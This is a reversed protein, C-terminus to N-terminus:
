SLNRPCHQQEVIECLIHGITIHAEQIRPTETSPVRICFDCLAPLEGGAAGTLGVTIMQQRRAVRLGSLVNPSTGSTSIAVAVDGPVGLAQLQRSFVQEFGYDNAIATLCSTNAHLAISRLPPREILYRGAFEAALHQADAASGGNGFFFITGGARLCNAMVGATEAILSIAVANGLLLQKVAISEALRQAVRSLIDAGPAARM